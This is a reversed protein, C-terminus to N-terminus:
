QNLVMVLRFIGKESTYPVQINMLTNVVTWWQDTDQVLLFGNCMRAASKEWCKANRPMMSIVTCSICLLYLCKCIGCKKKDLGYIYM